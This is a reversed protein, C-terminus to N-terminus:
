RKVVFTEKSFSIISNSIYFLNTETVCFSRLPKPNKKKKTDYQVVASMRDSVWSSVCGTQVHM